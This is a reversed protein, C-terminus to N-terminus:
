YCIKSTGAINKLSSMEILQANLTLIMHFHKQLPSELETDAERQEWATDPILQKYYFLLMTKKDAPQSVFFFINFPKIFM